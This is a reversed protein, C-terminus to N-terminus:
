PQYSLACRFGIGNGISGPPSSGRFAALLQFGEL